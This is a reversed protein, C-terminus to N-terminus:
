SKKAPAETQTQAQPKAPAKDSEAAISRGGLARAIGALGNKIDAQSPNDGNARVKKIQDQVERLEKHLPRMQDKLKREREQLAKLKADFAADEKALLERGRALGQPTFDFASLNSM